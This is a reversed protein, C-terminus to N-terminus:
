YINWLLYHSNYNNVENPAATNSLNVGDEQYNGGV